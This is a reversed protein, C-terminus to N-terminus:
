LMPGPAAAPLPLLRDALAIPVVTAALCPLALALALWDPLALAAGDLMWSLAIWPLAMKLFLFLSGRLRKESADLAEGARLPGRLLELPALLRKLVYLAAPLLGLVGLGLLALRVSWLSLADPSVLSLAALAPILGLLALATSRLGLLIEAALASGLASWPARWATTGDGSRAAGDQLLIRLAALRGLTDFPWWLLTVALYAPDVMDWGRARSLLEPPLASLALWAWLAPSALPRWLPFGGGRKM